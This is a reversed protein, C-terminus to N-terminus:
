DWRICRGRCWANSDDVSSAYLVWNGGTNNVECIAHEGGGDDIDEFRVQTLGCFENGNAATITVQGTSGDGASVAQEDVLVFDDVFGDVTISGNIVMDGAVVTDAGRIQLQDGLTTVIKADGDTGLSSNGHFDIYSKDASLSGPVKLEIGYQGNTDRGIHVGAQTPTETLGHGDGSDAVHFKSTPTTTGFGSKGSVVTLGDAPDGEVYMGGGVYLYDGELYSDDIQAKVFVVVVFVSVM